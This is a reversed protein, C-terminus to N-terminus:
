NRSKLFNIGLCSMLKKGLIEMAAATGQAKLIQQQQSRSHTKHSSM